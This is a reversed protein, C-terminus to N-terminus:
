ADPLRPSAWLVLTTQFLDGLMLDSYFTWGDKEAVQLPEIIHHAHCLFTTNMISFIYFPTALGHWMYWWNFTLVTAM